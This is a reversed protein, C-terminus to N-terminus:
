CSSTYFALQYKVTLLSFHYKCSYIKRQRFSLRCSSLFESPQTSLQLVANWNQNLYRVVALEPCHRLLDLAIDFLKSNICCCVVVAAHTRNELSLLYPRTMMNYLYYSMDNHGKHCAESLPIFGNENTITLLDNNKRILMEAIKTNGPSRAAYHLATRGFSDQMKVDEESMYSLLEKIMELNGETIAWLFTLHDKYGYIGSGILNPKAM